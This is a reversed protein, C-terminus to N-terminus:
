NKTEKFKTNELNIERIKKNSKVIIIFSTTAVLFVVVSSVSYAIIKENENMLIKKENQDYSILPNIEKNKVINDQTQINKNVVLLSTTIIGIGALSLTILSLAMKKKM